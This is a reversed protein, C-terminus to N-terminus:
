ESPQSFEPLSPHSLEESVQVKKQPQRLAMALLVMATKLHSPHGSNAELFQREFYQQLKEPVSLDIQSQHLLQMKTPDGIAQLNATQQRSNLGEEVNGALDLPSNMAAMAAPTTALWRDLTNTDVPTSAPVNEEFDVEIRAATEPDAKEKPDGVLEERDFETPTQIEAMMAAPIRVMPLM